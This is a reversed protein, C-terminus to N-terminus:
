RGRRAIWTLARTAMALSLALPVGLSLSLSIDRSTAIALFAVNISMLLYMLPIQQLLSSHQERLAAESSGTLAGVLRRIKSM